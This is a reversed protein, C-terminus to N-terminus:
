PLLVVYRRDLLKDSDVNGQYLGQAKYWDIQRRIDRGDLRGERDVYSMGARLLEVPQNLDKSLVALVADATPGDKRKGDSTIFADAYDHMGRVYARLFRKVMDGKEDAIKTSTYAAGLQWPTEDGIWGLLHAQNNRVLSLAFTSPTVGADVRNAAITAVLNPNTKVTELDISSLPFGYKDALLGVCYHPASGLTTVAVSHGALDKYSRLGKDWAANSVVVGNNPFGPNDRGQASIIRVLNQAALNYFGASLSTAGFQLDGSAISVALTQANDFTVIEAAFGEDKFYGRDLALYMPGAGSTQLVGIRIPDGGAAFAPRAASAALPVLGSLLRLASRRTPAFSDFM